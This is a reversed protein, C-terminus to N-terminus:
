RIVQVRSLITDLVDAESLNTLFIINGYGPEEFFKLAANASQLTMRSINEILFIQFKFRPKENGKSLFSRMEEIKISEATDRLLFLSNIDIDHEKLLIKALSEVESSILELNSSLFLFPSMSEGKKIKEAINKQLFSNLMMKLYTLSPTSNM